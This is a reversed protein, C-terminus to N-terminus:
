AQECRFPVSATASDGGGARRQAKVCLTATAPLVARRSAFVSTLLGCAPTNSSFNYSVCMYIYIHIYINIYVFICM